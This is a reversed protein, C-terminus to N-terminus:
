KSNRCEYYVKFSIRCVVYTLATNYLDMLCKWGYAAVDTGTSNMFLDRRSQGVNVLGGTNFGVNPYITRKLMRDFSRVLTTASERMEPLSPNGGSNPDFCDYVYPINRTGTGVTNNAIDLSASGPLMTIEVKMVRMLDFLAQIDTAGPIATSQSGNVYLYGQSFGVGLALDATFTHDYDVVLPIICTNSKVVPPIRRSVYNGRKFKKGKGGSSSTRARKRGYGPMTSETDERALYYEPEQTIEEFDM